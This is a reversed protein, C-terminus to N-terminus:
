NVDYVASPLFHITLNNNTLQYNGPEGVARWKRFMNNAHLIKKGNIYVDCHTDLGEFVISRNNQLYGAPIDFTKNYYVDMTEIWYADLLNAGFYPDKLIGHRILDLHITSPVEAPYYTTNTGIRFSWNGNLSMNACRAIAVVLCLAVITKM